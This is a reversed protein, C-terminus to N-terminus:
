GGGRCIATRGVAHDQQAAKILSTEDKEGIVFTTFRLLQVVIRLRGKDKVPGFQIPLNSDFPGNLPDRCLLRIGVKPTAGPAAAQTGPRRWLAPNNGASLHQIAAHFFKRGLVPIAINGTWGVPSAIAQD